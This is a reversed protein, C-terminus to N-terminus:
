PKMGEYAYFNGYQAVCVYPTDARMNEAHGPSNQWMIEVETYSSTMAINETVKTWHAYPLTHSAVRNNFGDHNFGSAIEQARTKAFNCTETSPKVQYLGLSSRYGNIQNMIYNQVDSLAPNGAAAVPTVTSTPTPTKTTTVQTNTPTPSKSVSIITTPAPTATIRVPTQSIQIQIVQSPALQKIALLQQLIHAHISAQLETITITASARPVQVFLSLSFLSLALVIPLHRHM